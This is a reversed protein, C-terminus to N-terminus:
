YITFGLRSKRLLNLFSIFSDAVARTVGSRSRGITFQSTKRRQRLYIGDIGARTVGSHSLRLRAAIQPM